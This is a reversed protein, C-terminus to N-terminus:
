KCLSGYSVKSVGVHLSDGADFLDQCHRKGGCFVVAARGLEGSGYVMRYKRAARADARLEAQRNCLGATLVILRQALGRGDGDFEQVAGRQDM